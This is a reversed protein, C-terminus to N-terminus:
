STGAMRLKSEGQRIWFDFQLQFRLLFLFIPTGYLYNINNVLLFVYTVFSKLSRFWSIRIRSM